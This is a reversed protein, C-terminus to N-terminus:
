MLNGSLSNDAKTAESRERVNNRKFSNKSTQEM